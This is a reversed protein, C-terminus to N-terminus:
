VANVFTVSLGRTESASPLVISAESSSRSCWSACARQKMALETVASSTTSGRQPNPLARGADAALLLGVVGLLVIVLLPLVIDVDSFVSSQESNMAPVEERGDCDTTVVSCCARWM